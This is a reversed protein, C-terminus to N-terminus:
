AANQLLHPTYRANFQRCIVLITTSANLQINCDSYCSCYIYQIKRTGSKVYGLGSITGQIQLMHPTYRPNFQRYIVLISPSVIVQSNIDSYCSSYNYQIQSFVSKVYRLGTITSQIPLLHPTYFADIKWCVVLQLPSVNLQINFGSHCSSYIYKIQSRDTNLYRLRSFKPQMQCCSHLIVRM